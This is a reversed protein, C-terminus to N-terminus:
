PGDLGVQLGFLLYETATFFITVAVIVLYALPFLYRSRVAQTQWSFILAVILWQTINLATGVSDNFVYHSGDGAKDMQDYPFVYQPLFFLINGIIHGFLQSGILRSGEIILFPFLFTSFLCVCFVTLPRGLEKIAAPKPHV